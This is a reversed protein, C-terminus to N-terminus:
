RSCGGKHRKWDTKQCEASCYKAKKCKACVLLAEGSSCANKKKERGCNSCGVSSGVTVQTETTATQAKQRLPPVTFCDEVYPIPFMPSLAIRTAYQKLVHQLNGIKLNQLYGVPFKGVGCSCIPSHGDNLGESVPVAGAKAYECTSSHRWIRCREALAPLVSKWCRLEEDSVKIQMVGLSTLNQYFARVKKDANMANTLPVVAADLVVTRNILDLRLCSPFFLVNIGGIAKALGFIQCHQGQLGTYNMLMSFLGDKMEVRMNPKTEAAGSDALDDERVQRERTSFMMSTHTVLWQMKEKSSIDVVPLSDLRVQTATWPIPDLNQHRISDPLATPFLLCESTETLPDWPPAEIEVYSSKRAIRIKHRLHNVPVPFDIQRIPSDGVKVTARMANAFQVSVSTSRDRLKAKEAETTCTIRRTLTAISADSPSLVVDVTSGPVSPSPASESMFRPIDTMAPMYRSISVSKSTIKASHIDLTLGLDGLFVYCSQPTSLLGCKVQPITGDSQLLTWTPAFFSVFMDSAGWWTSDDQVIQLASSADGPQQAQGFAIQDAAFINSWPRSSVGGGEITCRLSPTGISSTAKSTFVSLKRRPVRITVCVHAPVNPWAKFLSATKTDKSANLNVAPLINTYTGLMDLHLLLEQYFNAGLPAQSFGSCILSMMEELCQPWDTTVARRVSAVVVAFSARNYYPNAKNALTRINIDRLVSSMSEHDFMHDYLNVMLRALQASDMKVLSRSSDQSWAHRQKWRLRSRIQTSGRVEKVGMISNVADLMSEDEPSNTVNTWVECPSLGLLLAITQIDGGLLNAIREKQSASNQVLCETYITSFATDNLLRACAPLINLM